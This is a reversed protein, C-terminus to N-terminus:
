RSKTFLLVECTYSNPSHVAVGVLLGGLEDLKQQVLEQIAEPRPYSPPQGWETTGYCEVVTVKCDSASVLDM